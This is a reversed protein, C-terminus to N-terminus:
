SNYKNGTDTWAFEGVAEMVDGKRMLFFCYLALRLLEARSVVSYM